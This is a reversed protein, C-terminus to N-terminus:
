DCRGNDDVDYRLSTLSVRGGKLPLLHPSILSMGNSTAPPIFSRAKVKPSSLLLTCELTCSHKLTHRSM